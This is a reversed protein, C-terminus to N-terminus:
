RGPRCRLPVSCICPRLLMTGRGTLMGKRQEKVARKRIRIRNEVLNKHYFILHQELGSYSVGCREAAEQVTIYRDSRLMDVAEAYQELCWRCM